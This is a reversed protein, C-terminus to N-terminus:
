GRNSVLRPRKARTREAEREVAREQELMAADALENMRMTSATHKERAALFAKLAPQGVCHVTKM